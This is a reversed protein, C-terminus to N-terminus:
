RSEGRAQSERYFVMLNEYYCRQVSGSLRWQERWSAAVNTEHGFGCRAFMDIWYSAPQENVHDTGGQGPSAATFVITDALGCLLEIFHGAAREPLHEAVEMSVALDFKDAILLEDTELNCKVVRLGRARCQALAADSYEIGCVECGRTRLEELLVGTGCGVDIVKQVRPAIDAAISRAIVTSSRSAADHVELRYYDDDYVADHPLHKYIRNLAKRALRSQRITVPLRKRCSQKIRVIVPSLRRGIDRGDDQWLTHATLLHCRGHM